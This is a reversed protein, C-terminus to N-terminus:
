ISEQWIVGKQNAIAVQRLGDGVDQIIYGEAIKKNGIQKIIRGNIRSIKQVLNQPYGETCSILNDVTKQGGGSGKYSPKFIKYIRIIEERYKYIEEYRIGEQHRLFLLYVAKHIADKLDIRIYDVCDSIIISFDKKIYLSPYHAEEDYGRILSFRYISDHGLLNMQRVKEETEERLMSINHRLSGEEFDLAMERDEEDQNFNDFDPEPLSALFEPDMFLREAEEESDYPMDPNHALYHCIDELLNSFDNKLYWQSSMDLSLMRYISETYPEGNPDRTCFLLSSSPIVANEKDFAFLCDYMLTSKLAMSSLPLHGKPLFDEKVFDWLESETMRPFYCFEFNREKFHNRIESYHSQIFLNVDEDYEKEMYIIHHTTMNVPLVDLDTM